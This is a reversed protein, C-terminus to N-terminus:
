RQGLKGGSNGIKSAAGHARLKHLGPLLDKTDAEITSHSLWWAGDVPMFHVNDIGRDLATCDAYGVVDSWLTSLGQAALASSNGIQRLLLLRPGNNDKLIKGEFHSTKEKTAPRKM